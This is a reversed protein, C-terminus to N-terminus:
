MSVEFENYVDRLLKPIKLSQPCIKVCDGCEDCDSASGYEESLAFTRYQVQQTSFDRFGFRKSDNYLSFYESIPINNKCVGDMCYRCETCDIAIDEELIKSVKKLIEIENLTIPKFNKFVNINDITQELNQTGSLVYSVNDLSGCFRMGWSAISDDPHYDKLLDFAEDRINILTGGKLPEM